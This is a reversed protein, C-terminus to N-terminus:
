ICSSLMGLSIIMPAQQKGTTMQFSVESAEIALDMEEDCVNSWFEIGQLAVEDIDSKMAEITIKLFMFSLLPSFSAKLLSLSEWCATVALSLLAFWSCLFVKGRPNPCLFVPLDSLLPHSAHTSVAFLAPGM